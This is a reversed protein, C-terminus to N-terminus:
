LLEASVGLFTQCHNCITINHSITSGCQACTREPLKSSPEPQPPLPAVEGLIELLGLDSLPGDKEDLEPVRVHARCKPCALRRGRYEDKVQIKHGNACRIIFDSM